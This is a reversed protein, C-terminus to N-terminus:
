LVHKLIETASTLLLPLLVALPSGGHQILFQKVKPVRRLTSLKRLNSQEKRLLRQVSPRVKLCKSTYNFILEVLCAITTDDIKELKSVLDAKDDFNVLDLIKKFTKM